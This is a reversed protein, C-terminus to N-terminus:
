REPNAIGGMVLLYADIVEARTKQQNECLRIVTKFVREGSAVLKLPPMHM